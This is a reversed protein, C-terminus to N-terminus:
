KKKQVIYLGTIVLVMGVATYISVPDNMMINAIMYGFVPCLFLWFSAKVANDKLMFLWLQVAIVSVPIALWLSSAFLPATFHNASPRYTIAAIPLLFVGGLLTQWGNITLMQLTGWNRRSFYIIGVSYALMSSLLILLGAPTAIGSTLLPWAALLIGTSCLLLSGIIYLRLRQKFFIMSLLSIFVPNAAVALSGIGPSVYQMAWIYLGLYISINLLGYVAVSLWEKKQPLRNRLIVHTIILMLIGAVFFRMVCIVFPQAYKLSIKTATSASSWLLSFLFGAAFLVFGRTKNVPSAQQQLTDM